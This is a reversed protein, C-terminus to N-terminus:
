SQPHTAFAAPPPPPPSIPAEVLKEGKRVTEDDVEYALGVKGRKVETAILGFWNDKRTLGFIWGKELTETFDRLVPMYRSTAIFVGPRHFHYITPYEVEYGIRAEARGWWKEREFRLAVLEAEINRCNEMVDSIEWPELEVIIDEEKPAKEKLEAINSEDEPKTPYDFALAEIGDGKVYVGDRYVEVTVKEAQELLHFNDATPSRGLAYVKREPPRDVIWAEGDADEYWAIELSPIIAYFNLTEPSVEVFHYDARGFDWLVAKLAEVFLEKGTGEFTYCGILDKEERLGKEVDERSVTVPSICFWSTPLWAAGIPYNALLPGQNCFYIEVSEKKTLKELFDIYDRLPECRYASFPQTEEATVYDVVNSLTLRIPLVVLDPYDAVFVVYGVEKEARAKRYVRDLTDSFTNIGVTAKVNFKEEILNKAKCLYAISGINTLYLPHSVKHEGFTAVDLQLFGARRWDVTVDYRIRFGNEEVGYPPLFSSSFFFVGRPGGFVTLETVKAKKAYRLLKQFSLFDIEAEWVPPNKKLWEEGKDTLLLTEKEERRGDAHLITRTGKEIYGEGVLRNVTDDYEERTCGTVEKCLFYLSETEISLGKSALATLITSEVVGVM